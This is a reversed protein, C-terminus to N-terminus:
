HTRFTVKSYVDVPTDVERAIKEALVYECYLECNKYNFFDMNARYSRALSFTGIRGPRTAFGPMKYCLPPAIAYDSFSRRKRSKECLQACIMAIRRACASCSASWCTWRISRSSKFNALSTLQTFVTKGDSPCITRNSARWICVM